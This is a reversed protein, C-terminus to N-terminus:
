MDRIQLEAEPFNQQVYKKLKKQISKERLRVAERTLHLESGLAQLTAPPDGLLRADLIRIDRPDLAKKFGDLVYRFKIRFDDDIVDEEFDDNDSSLQDGISQDSDASIPADLSVERLSLIYQAEIVDEEKENLHDALLATTASEGLLQLKQRARLLKPLLRRHTQTTVTKVLHWNDVVYKILMARIWYGAYTALRAGKETDFKTVAHMLGINGEQILDMISLGTWRYKNAIKVVLGLHSLVLKLAALRDGQEHFNRFLEEEEKRTLFPHRRIKALYHQYPDYLILGSVPMTLTDLAQRLDGNEAEEEEPEAGDGGDPLEESLGDDYTDTDESEDQEDELQYPDDDHM